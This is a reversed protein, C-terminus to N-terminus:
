KSKCKSIVSLIERSEKENTTACDKGYKLSDVDYFLFGCENNNYLEKQFSIFSEKTNNNVYRRIIRLM